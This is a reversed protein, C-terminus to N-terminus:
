PELHSLLDWCRGRALHIPTPTGSWCTRKPPTWVAGRSSHWIFNGMKKSWANKKRPSFIQFGGQKLGWDQSSNPPNWSNWIGSFLRIDGSFHQSQFVIKGIEFHERKSTVNMWTRPLHEVFRREKRQFIVDITSVHIMRFHCRNYLGLSSKM